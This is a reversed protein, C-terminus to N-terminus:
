VVELKRKKGNLNGNLNGNLHSGNQIPERAADRESRMAERARRHIAAPHNDPLRSGKGSMNERLTGGPKPYDLWYMGRRQLEPILLDVVDEYSGPNNCYYMNFGDIDTQEVWEQMSDAVTKATGIFVPYLGGLSIKSGLKRPTWAENSGDGAKFNTIIGHIANDANGGTFEFPEDLPYKSLDLNTYGGFKALGAIPSVNKAAAAYKAQAEEPTRGLFTSIGAFAKVDYPDRGAAAATDRISKVYKATHSPVM